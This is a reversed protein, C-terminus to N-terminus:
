SNQKEYSFLEGVNLTSYWEEYINCLRNVIASLHNKIMENEGENIRGSIRSWFEWDNEKIFSQEKVNVLRDKPSLSNNESRNEELSLARFNGIANTWHKTNPNIYWKAYVWSAPYIHDWDWPTNTDELNEMQNFDGFSDNIYKRQAFLVLPKCWFLKNIFNDWIGKTSNAIETEQEIENSLISNYIKVIESNASPYLNDWHVNETVVSQLLYSRLSSPKIMPYMIFDKKNLYPISLVEKSWFNNKSISNWVERVYKTNDRGFWSLATITALVKRKEDATIEKTNQKIWQLLMLFLEPSGKVLTKVLVIPIEFENESVLLNFAKSFIDKANGGILEHLKSKFKDDQIRKRFDNVSLPYPYSGENIESLALRSVLSIVQSPAIFSAGINEVLQKAEPFSAKYISYILEEGAIRTGSSNLRVFLTPDEGTQEDEAKLIEKKVVITPIEVQVLNKVACFINNLFDASDIVEQLQDLYSKENFHNHKTKIYETPLKEKCMAVLNAKWSKDNDLISKVLFSFPIPLDADYPFTNLPSIQIYGGKKNEPNERFINLANRRDAVSLISNHNIRQYGWPHSQTVVRFVFKQTATKEKPAIDIWITPVNKLSWFKGKESEDINWPDYFGFTISTARQQGDLLFYKEDESKSLLLSGIPFGRLISDWLSEVQNVKWVFSRQLAPLEVNSNDFDLQWSAIKSLGFSLPKEITKNEISM